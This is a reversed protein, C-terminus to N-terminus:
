ITKFFRHYISLPRGRKNKYKKTINLTSSNKNIEYFEKSSDAEKILKKTNFILQIRM